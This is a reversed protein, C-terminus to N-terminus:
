TFCFETDLSVLVEATLSAILDLIYFHLMKTQNKDPKM